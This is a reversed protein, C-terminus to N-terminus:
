EEPRRPSAGDPALRQISLTADELIAVMRDALDPDDGGAIARDRVAERLRHFALRLPHDPGPRGALGSLKARLAEVVTAEQRLRSLGAPTAHFTRRQGQGDGAGEEVLGERTLGMDALLTLTPYVVGPSPAYAGGSLAEVARILDYGHRPEEAILSLLVLQVGDRDFMRHRRRVADLGEADEITRRRHRM